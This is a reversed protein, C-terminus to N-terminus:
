AHVSLGDGFAFVDSEDVAIKRPNREKVLRALTEWQDAKGPEYLAKYFDGLGYRSVSSREVAGQGPDSFVLISLRRAAMSSAPVMTLYVPDENYERCLVIWM